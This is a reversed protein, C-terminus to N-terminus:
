LKKDPIIFKMEYEEIDIDRVFEKLCVDCIDDIQCHLDSLTV